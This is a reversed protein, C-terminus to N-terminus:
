PPDNDGDNATLGIGGLVRRAAGRLSPAGKGGGGDGGVGAVKARAFESRPGAADAAMDGGGGGGRPPQAVNRVCRCASVRLFMTSLRRAGSVSSSSTPTGTAMTASMSESLVSGASCSWNKEAACYGSWASRACGKARAGRRRASAPKRSATSGAEAASAALACAAARKAASMAASCGGSFKLATPPPRPM